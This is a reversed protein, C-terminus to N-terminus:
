RISTAKISWPLWLRQIWQVGLYLVVSMLALVVVAAMARPLDFNTTSDIILYGLGRQSTIFEGVVAGIVSLMIGVKLGSFIFPAAHPMRITLLETMFTGGAAKSLDLYDRPTDLIGTATAVMIPFFAVMLDIILRSEIGTGFIVVIIPAVAIVPVANAFVLLPYVAGSVIRNISIAVGLPIAVIVSLLFGALVTFLTAALHLPLVGAISVAAQWIDSPAPLLYSPIALARVVFQWILLLIALSAAPLLITQLRTM